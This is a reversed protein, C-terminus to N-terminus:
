AVLLLVNSQLVITNQSFILLFLTCILFFKAVRTVFTNSINFKGAIYLMIYIPYSLM